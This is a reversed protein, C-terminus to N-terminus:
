RGKRSFSRRETNNMTRATVIVTRGDEGEATVVFLYRGESTQAYILTTGDRGPAVRQPRSTLAEAVESPSVDHRAIHAESAESWAIDSSM